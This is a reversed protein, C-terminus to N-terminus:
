YRNSANTVSPKSSFDLPTEETSRNERVYLRRIAVSLLSGIENLREKSTPPRTIFEYKNLKNKM